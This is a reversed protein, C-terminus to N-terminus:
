SSWMCSAEGAVINHSSHAVLNGHRRGEVPPQSGETPRGPRRKQASTVCPPAWSLLGQASDPNKQLGTMKWCHRAVVIALACGPPRPVGWAAAFSNFSVAVLHHVHRLQHPSLGKASRPRVIRSKVFSHRRWLTVPRQGVRVVPASQVLGHGPPLQGHQNAGMPSPWSGRPWSGNWRGARPRRNRREPLPAHVM